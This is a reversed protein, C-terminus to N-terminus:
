HQSGVTLGNMNISREGFGSTLDTDGILDHPTIRAECCGGGFIEINIVGSLLGHGGVGSKIIPYSFKFRIDNNRKSVGQVMNLEIIRIPINFMMFACSRQFRNEARNFVASNAQIRGIEYDFYIVYKPCYRDVNAPIIARASRAGPNVYKIKSLVLSNIPLKGVIQQSFKAGIPSNLIQNFCFDGGMRIVDSWRNCHNFEIFAAHAPNAFAITTSVLIFRLINM